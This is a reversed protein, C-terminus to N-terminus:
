VVTVNSPAPLAAYVLLQNAEAGYAVGDNASVRASYTGHVMGALLVAGDIEPVGVVYVAVEALAADLLRVKYDVAGPVADWVVKQGININM